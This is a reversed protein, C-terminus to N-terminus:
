TGGHRSRRQIRRRRAAGLLALGVGLWVAVGSRPGGTRCGCGGDDTSESAPDAPEDEYEVPPPVVIGGGGTGEGAGDAGGASGDTTGSGEVCAGRECRQGAPCAAEACADRCTGEVCYEGAACSADSCADDVCLHEVCSQGDACGRCDCSNCFGYYEGDRERVECAYGEDCEVAECVDVCVGLHCRQGYPCQVDDCAGVCSGSVCIEGPPCDVGVCEPDLCVGSRNDCVLGLPCVFEGSSCPPVCEGRFCILAQDCLDGEDIEGDCNDDLANCVEERPEQTSICTLVGDRCQMVGDGCIGDDGTSCPEGGGACQLGTVLTLLDEFDNDGGGNLDEWGFYFAEPNIRSQWALMHIQGDADPNYARQTYFLNTPSGALTAGLPDDQTPVCEGEDNALFFGVEAIGAPVTLTRETGIDDDCGLFVHLEELAPQVAEGDADRRVEYWGFVNEYSAGRAIVEFTLNCLPNFTEQAITATDVVDIDGDGGLSQESDNICVGVNGWCEDGSLAPITTGDVQEVARASGVGTIAVFVGTLVLLRQRM